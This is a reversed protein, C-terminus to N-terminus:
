LASASRSLTSLVLIPSINIQNLIDQLNLIRANKVILYLECGSPSLDKGSSNTQQYAELACKHMPNYSGLNLVKYKRKTFKLASRVQGTKLNAWAGKLSLVNM